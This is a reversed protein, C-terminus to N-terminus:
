RLQRLVQIMELAALMAEGGKNAGDVAARLQAQALTEVTLVGFIVPIGTDLAVQQLGRTSEACVYEFHPTDGRIVCGLAVIAAHHQLRAVHLATVPLELAGPVRIIQLSHEQGGCLRWSAKAGEVLQSVISDNFNAAVIAVQCQSADFVNSQATPRTWESM